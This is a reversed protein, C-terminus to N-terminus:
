PAREDDLADQDIQALEARSISLLRTSHPFRTPRKGHSAKVTICPEGPEAHCRRCARRLAAARLRAPKGARM